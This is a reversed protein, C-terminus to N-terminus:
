RGNYTSCHTFYVPPVSNGPPGTTLFEGALASSLPKIAPRSLDWTGLFLLAPAASSSLGRERAASGCCSFGACPSAWVGCPLASGGGCRPLGSSAVSARRLWFWWLCIIELLSVLSAQFENHRMSKWPTANQTVEKQGTNGKLNCISQVSETGIVLPKLLFVLVLLLIQPADWSPGGWSRRKSRIYSQLVLKTRGEWSIAPQAQVCTTTMREWRTREWRCELSSFHICVSVCVCLHVSM